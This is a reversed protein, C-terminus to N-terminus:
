QRSEKLAADILRQATEHFTEGDSLEHERRILLLASQYTLGEQLEALSAAAKNKRGMAACYIEPLLPLV